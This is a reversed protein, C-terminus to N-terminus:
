LKMIMGSSPAEELEIEREKPYYSVNPTRIERMLRDAEAAAEEYTDYIMPEGDRKLWAEAPGCVSGASRRDWISYQKMHTGGQIQQTSINRIPIGLRKAEAIECRMGSSIHGGCIWLEECSALVRLGMRIGTKRESPIADNLLLPYLLHVAVPACDQEMAYHCAAKAFRINSEIDGAYPSCMYVLKM